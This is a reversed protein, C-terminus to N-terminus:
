KRPPGKSTWVVSLIKWGATTKMLQWVEMGRNKIAGGEVFDFDFVVVALNADQTIKVNYFKEEVGKSQQIFSAFPVFGSAPLGTFNVDVTERVKQARDPPMPSAFLINSDLMLSSLLVANKTRLAVQFDQVIKEIAQVEQKSSERYGAHPPDAAGAGPRFFLAALVAALIMVPRM